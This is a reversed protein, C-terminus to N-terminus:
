SRSHHEGHAGRKSQRGAPQRGMRKSAAMTSLSQVVAPDGSTDPVLSNEEAAATPAPEEQSIGDGGAFPDEGKTLRHLSRSLRRASTTASRSDKAGVKVAPPSLISSSNPDLAAELKPWCPEVELPVKSPDSASSHAKDFLGGNANGVIMSERMKQARERLAQATEEVEADAKTTAAPKSSSKQSKANLLARQAAERQELTADSHDRAASYDLVEEEEEEYEAVEIQEPSPSRSRRQRQQEIVYERNEEAIRVAMSRKSEDRSEYPTGVIIANPDRRSSALSTVSDQWSSSATKNNKGEEHQEMFSKILKEYDRELM